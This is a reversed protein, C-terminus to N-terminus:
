ANDLRVKIFVLAAIMVACVVAYSRWTWGRVDVYSFIFAAVSVVSSWAGPFLQFFLALGSVVLASELWPFSSEDDERIAPTVRTKKPSSVM